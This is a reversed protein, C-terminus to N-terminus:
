RSVGPLGGAASSVPSSAGGSPFACVGNMACMSPLSAEAGPAVHAPLPPPPVPAPAPAACTRPPRRTCQTRRRALPAASSRTETLGRDIGFINDPTRSFVPLSPIRGHLPKLLPPPPPPPPAGGGPLRLLRACRKSCPDDVIPAPSRQPPPPLTQPPELAGVLGTTCRRRAYAAGGPTADSLRSAGRISSGRLACPARRAASTAASAPTVAPAAPTPKAPTVACRGREPKSPPSPLMPPPLTSPLPPLMPSLPLMSQSQRPGPPAGPTAAADAEGCCEKIPPVSSGGWSNGMGRLRMDLLPANSGGWSNGMGRLRMDLLPANSGGWSNGMGRLRM